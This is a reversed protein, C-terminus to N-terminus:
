LTLVVGPMVFTVDVPILDSFVHVIKWVTVRVKLYTVSAAIFSYRDIRFFLIYIRLPYIDCYMRMYQYSPNQANSFCQQM